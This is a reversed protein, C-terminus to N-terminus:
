LLKLPSKWVMPATITAHYKKKPMLPDITSSNLALPKTFLGRPDYQKAVRFCEVNYETKSEEVRNYIRNLYPIRILKGITRKGIQLDKKLDDIPM